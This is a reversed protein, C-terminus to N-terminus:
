SVSDFCEGSGHCVNRGVDVGYAGRVTSPDSELPNTAGLLTRGAAVVGKGEWVMAVVPGSCLFDVLGGFFPKSSLSEYHEEVLARDPVLMKMAVLKFGKDEFKTIVKGVLGRQTCDPKAM